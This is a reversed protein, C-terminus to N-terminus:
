SGTPSMIGAWRFAQEQMWCEVAYVISCLPVKPHIEEFVANSRNCNFKAKENTGFIESCLRCYNSPRTIPTGNPRTIVSSVGTALAFGDQMQQIEELNFLDDFTINEGGELPQTLALMRKELAKETQKQKTIDQVVGSIKIPVGNSDTIRNAIGHVIRPETEGKRFIQFEESYTSQGPHINKILHEMKPRDKDSLLGFIKRIPIYQSTNELGFINFTEASAWIKRTSLDYEWNGIHAIQQALELRTESEKIAQQALRSETIDRFVAFTGICNGAQDLQPRPSVQLIRHAGDPRIIDLDYRGSKGAIRENTQLKLFEFTEKDVFEQINHSVLSNQPVGFFMETTPNAFIFYEELDVICIGESLNNVLEQYQVDKEQLALKTKQQDTIDHAVFIVTDDTLPSTTAAFWRPENEIQLNYEVHTITKSVVTEQIAKLIISASKAPLIQTVTKGLIEPPTLYLGSTSTPAVELYHGETDFVLIVDTMASFLSRLKQESNKLALEALKRETTVETYTIMGGIEGDARYWPRCEWSNYTISGDPRVFSDDDNRETAGKLVRKHIEKWRGPMEPFVAYHHKGIINEDTINYDKIYRDSVAIYNLNLDYVAIANPDHKIIYRMM